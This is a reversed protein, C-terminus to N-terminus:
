GVHQRLVSELARLMGMPSDGGMEYCRAREVLRGLGELASGGMAKLNTTESTLVHLARGRSMPQLLPADVDALWCVVDVDFPHEVFLYREPGNTPALPLRRDLADAPIDLQPRAPVVRGSGPDVAVTQVPTLSVGGQELQRRLRILHHVLPAPILATGDGTRALAANLFIADSRGPFSLSELESLLVRGVTPLDFTRVLSITGKYLINLKKGADVGDGPVVVSYHPDSEEPKQYHGLASDLWVGFAESTSRIGVRVRGIELTRHM